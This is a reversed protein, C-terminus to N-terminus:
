APQPARQPLALELAAVLAKLRVEFEAILLTLTAHAARANIAEELAGASAPVFRAGINGSVGKCTHALRCATVWDDQALAQRIAGPVDKQGAVFRQLMAVYLPLKGMMRTMGAAADLEAIGAFSAAALGPSAAGAPSSAVVETARIASAQPPAARHGAPIWRILAAWLDDPNVPKVVFDNMGADLCRTRDPGMANATMAVIPLSAYAPMRRIAQTATVGDMVPMQMDMLVLDWPAQGIMDLAVQGNGAIEVVFGAETLLGAAVQQNIDNDEVLLIRAGRRAALEATPEPRAVPLPARAPRLHGLTDMTTDLLASANVPKVLMHRLGMADTERLWEERGYATVMVIAPAPQLALAQIRRATEV